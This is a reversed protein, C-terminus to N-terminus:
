PEDKRQALGKVVLAVMEDIDDTQFLQANDDDSLGNNLGRVGARHFDNAIAQYDVPTDPALSQTDLMEAYVPDSQRHHEVTLGPPTAGRIAEILAATCGGFGGLLYVPKDAAIALHAEEVLGPYKGKFGTVRGGLFIRADTEANMRRRMATLCRSWVRRGAATDPAIFTRADIGLDDPPPVEIIQAVAKLAERDEAGLSLYLPWALYNRIREANPTDPPEYTRVLDLLTQSFGAVRHDGGYALSAGGAVLQRAIEVFARDLHTHSLGRAALEDDPSESISIGIRLRSLAVANQDDPRNSEPTLM